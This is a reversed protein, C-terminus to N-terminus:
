QYVNQQPEGPQFYELRINQSLTWVVLSPVGNIFLNSCGVSIPLRHLLKQRKLVIIIQNDSLCSRKMLIKESESYPFIRRNLVAIKRPTGGIRILVLLHSPTRFKGLTDVWCCEELLEVFMQWETRIRWDRQGEYVHRRKAEASLHDAFYNSWFYFDWNVQSILNRDIWSWTNIQM